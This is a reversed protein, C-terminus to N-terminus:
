FGHTHSERQTNDGRAAVATIRNMRRAEDTRLSRTSNAVIERM